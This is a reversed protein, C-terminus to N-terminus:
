NDMKVPYDVLEEEWTIYAKLSGDKMLFVPNAFADSTVYENCELIDIVNKSIILIDEQSNAQYVSYVTTGFQFLYGAWFSYGAYKAGLPVKACRTLSDNVEELVEGTKHNWYVVRGEAIYEEDLDVSLPEFEGWDIVDPFSTNTSSQCGTFCSIALAIIITLIIVKKM